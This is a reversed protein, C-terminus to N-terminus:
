SQGPAKEPKEMRREQRIREVQVCIDQTTTFVPPILTMLVRLWDQGRPTLLAKGREIVFLEQEVLSKAPLLRELAERAQDESLHAGNRGARLEVVRNELLLEHLAAFGVGQEVAFADLSKLEVPHRPQAAKSALTKANLAFM